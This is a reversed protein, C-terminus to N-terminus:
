IWTAVSEYAVSNLNFVSPIVIVCALFAYILFRISEEKEKRGIFNIFLPISLVGIIESIMLLRIPGFYKRMIVPLFSTSNPVCAIVFLMLSGILLAALLFDRKEVQVFGEKYIKHAIIAVTFFLSFPIIMSTSLSQSLYMGYNEEGKRPYMDILKAINLPKGGLGYDRVTPSVILCAVVTVVSFLLILAEKYVAKTEGSKICIIVLLIESIMVVSFAFSIWKYIDFRNYLTYVSIPSLIYAMTLVDASLFSVYGKNGSVVSLKMISRRILYYEFCFICFLLMIYCVYANIHSAESIWIFLTLSESKYDGGIIYGTLYPSFFFLLTIVFIFISMVRFVSKQTQLGSILGGNKLDDNESATLVHKRLVKKRIEFVILLITGLISIAESVRWYWPVVFKVYVNGEYYPPIEVRIVNNDGYCIDFINGKEDYARYGRYNLLPYEIFGAKDSTNNITMIGRLYGAEYNMIEIKESSSTKNYFLLNEDTGEPKYEGGAIYGTGIGEANAIYYKGVTALKADSFYISSFVFSLVTVIYITRKTNKENIKEFCIIISAIVPITFISAYELFRVPYQISSVVMQTIKGLSQIFDWPFVKLSFLIFASAIIFSHKAFRYECKKEGVFGMIWLISFLIISLVFVLGIGSPDCHYMGKFSDAGEGMVDVFLRLLQPPYLGWEQITRASVYKIHVNELFFYEVFPVIFWLCLIITTLVSLIVSCIVRKRFMRPINLLFVILLVVITMETSLVHCLVLGSVGIGLPLFSVTGSKSDNLTKEYFIEYIGLLILPFFITATGEGITGTAILRCFRIISTSYIICLSVSIYEKKYIRKFSYYAVVITAINVAILYINYADTVSFGILRLIAPLFLFFDCYFIGNAYGYNQLWHSEIRVPIQFHRIANVVGEIRQKHYGDDGTSLTNEYLAPLSLFLCLGILIFITILQEKSIRGCKVGEFIWIAGMIILLAISLYAANLFWKKGTNIIRINEILCDEKYIKCVVKLSDTFDKLIFEAKGQDMGQYLPGGTSELGRARVTNDELYLFGGYLLDTDMAFDAEVRYIGPKLSIGDAVVTNENYTQIKLNPSDSYVITEKSLLGFIICFAMFIVYIALLVKISKKSVFEKIM